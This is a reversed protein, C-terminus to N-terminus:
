RSTRDYYAAVLFLPWLLDFMFFCYVYARLPQKSEINLLKTFVTFGLAMVVSFGIYLYLYFM